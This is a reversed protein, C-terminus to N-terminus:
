EELRRRPRFEGACTRLAVPQTWAHERLIVPDIRQFRVAVETVLEAILEGAGDVIHLLRLRLQLRVGLRPLPPRAGAHAPVGGKPGRRLMALLWRQLVLGEPGPGRGGPFHSGGGGGRSPCLTAGRR